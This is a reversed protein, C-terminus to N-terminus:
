KDSNFDMINESKLTIVSPVKLIMTSAIPYRIYRMRFLPVNKAKTIDINNNLEMTSAKLRNKEGKVM